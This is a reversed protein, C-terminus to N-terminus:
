ANREEGGSAEAVPELDDYAMLFASLGSRVVAHEDVIMVRITKPRATM